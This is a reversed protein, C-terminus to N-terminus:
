DLLGPFTKEVFKKTILKYPLKKDKVHVLLEADDKDLSELLTIFIHERKVQSLTPHGNEIFLYLKKVESYLMGQSEVHDTPKYPAPGEPLLFKIKPDYCYKLLARLPLSDNQYIFERRKESDAIANAKSLIESM